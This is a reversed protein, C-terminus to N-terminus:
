FELTVPVTSYHSSIPKKCLQGSERASVSDNKDDVVWIVLSNAGRLFRDIANSNQVQERSWKFRGSQDCTMINRKMPLVVKNRLSHASKVSYHAGIGEISCATCQLNQIEKVLCALECPIESEFEKEEETARSFVVGRSSHQNEELFM